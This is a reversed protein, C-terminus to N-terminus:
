SEILPYNFATKNKHGRTREPRNRKFFTPSKTQAITNYPNYFLMGKYAVHSNNVSVSAEMGTLRRDFFGDAYYGKITNSETPNSSNNNKPHTWLSQGLESTTPTTSSIASNNVSSGENPRRFGAPCTEAYVKLTNWYTTSNTHLWNGPASSVPYAPNFTYVSTATNSTTAYQFFAGAQSPYAALYDEAPSPQVPAVASQVQNASVKFAPNTLNYPLIKAALPRYIPPTNLTGNMTPDTPRMLYDAEHGQRIFIKQHRTYNYYSVVIVAYRCPKTDPDYGPQDSWKTKLGIRFLIPTSVNASGLAITSSGVSYLADNAPNNMDAASNTFINPDASPDSSFVIDGENFDDGYQYVRVAWNGASTSMIPIRIVREGTQDARWFAGGYSNDGIATGIGFDPISPISPINIGAQSFFTKVRGETARSLYLETKQDVAGTATNSPARLYIPTLTTANPQTYSTGVDNVGDTSLTFWLPISPNILEATTYINGQFNMLKAAGSASLMDDVKRIEITQQLNGVKVVIDASTFTSANITNIKIDTKGPTTGGDTSLTLSQPSGGM